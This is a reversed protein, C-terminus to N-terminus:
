VKEPRSFGRGDGGLVWLKPSGGGTAIPGLDSPAHDCANM